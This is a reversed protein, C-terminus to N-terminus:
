QHSIQMQQVLLRDNPCSNGSFAYLGVVAYVYIILFFPILINCVKALAGMLYATPENLFNVEKIFFILRLTRIAKFYRQPEGTPLAYAVIGSISM